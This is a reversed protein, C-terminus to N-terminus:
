DPKSYGCVAYNQLQYILSYRDISVLDLNPSDWSGDQVEKPYHNLDQADVWVFVYTSIYHKSSIMLDLDTNCVIWSSTESFVVIISEFISM